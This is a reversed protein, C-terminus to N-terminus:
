KKLLLQIATIQSSIQVGDFDMAPCFLATKM